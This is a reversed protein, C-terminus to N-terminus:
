FLKSRSNVDRVYNKIDDLLSGVYVTSSGLQSETSANIKRKLSSYQAKLKEYKSLLKEYEGDFGREFAMSRISPAEMALRHQLEENNRTLQNIEEIYNANICSVHRVAREIEEKSHRMAELELCRRELFEELFDIQQSQQQVLTRLSDNEVAM